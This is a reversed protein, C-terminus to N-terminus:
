CRMLCRLRERRSPHRDRGLEFRDHEGTELARACAPGDRHSSLLNEFNCLIELRGDYLSPKRRKTEPTM